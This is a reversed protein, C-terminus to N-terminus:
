LRLNKALVCTKFSNKHYHISRQLTRTFFMQLVWAYKNEIQIYIRKDMLSVYVICVHTCMDSQIMRVVCIIVIKCYSQFKQLTIISLVYYEVYLMTTDDTELLRALTAIYPAISFLEQPRIMANQM